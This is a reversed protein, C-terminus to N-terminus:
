WALGSRIRAASPLMDDCANAALPESCGFASLKHDEHIIPHSPREFKGAGIRRSLERLGARLLDTGNAVVKKSNYGLMELHSKVDLHKFTRGFLVPGWDRSFRSYPHIAFARRGCQMLGVMPLHAFVLSFAGEFTNNFFHRPMLFPLAAALRSRNLILHRASFYFSRTVGCEDSNGGDNTHWHCITPPQLIILESQRHFIGSALDLLGNASRHLFIDPDLYACLQVADDADLCAEFFHLLGLWNSAAHEKSFGEVVNGRRYIDGISAGGVDQPIVNAFRQM